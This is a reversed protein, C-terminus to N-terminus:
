DIEDMLQYYVKVTFDCGAHTIYCNSLFGERGLIVRLIVFDRGVVRSRAREILYLRGRVFFGLTIQAFFADGARQVHISLLVFCYRLSHSTNLTNLRESLLTPGGFPM